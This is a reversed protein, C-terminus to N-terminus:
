RYPKSVMGPEMFVKGDAAVLAAFYRDMAERLRGHQLAADGLHRRRPRTSPSSRYKATLVLGSARRVSRTTPDPLSVTTHVIQKPCRLHRLGPELLVLAVIPLM